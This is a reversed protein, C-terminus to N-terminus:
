RNFYIFAINNNNVILTVIDNTRLNHTEIKSKQFTQLEKKNNEM